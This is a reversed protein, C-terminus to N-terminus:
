SRLQKAWQVDEQITEVTQTPVPDVAALDRRGIVVAIGAAIGVIVGVILFAVGTAVVEALGWAAAFSLLALALYGLLAGAGIFAGARGATRVEEKIEVKALDIEDRLLRGLDATTRSILEGLSPEHDPVLDIDAARAPADTGSEPRPAAM